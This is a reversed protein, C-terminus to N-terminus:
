SACKNKCADEYQKSLVIMGSDRFGETSDMAVSLKFGEPVWKELACM